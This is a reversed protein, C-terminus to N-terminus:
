DADKALRFGVQAMRLKAPHGRDNRRYTLAGLRPTEYKVSTGRIVYCLKKESWFSATWEAVNGAMNVAGLPSVDGAGQRVDALVGEGDQQWFHGRGKKWFSGWPYARRGGRRPDCSAAIEWEVETPLRMKRFRAYADAEFWSIGTVPLNGTQSPYSGGFWGRPGPQRGERDLFTAALAKGGGSWYSPEAYGGADVFEKFRANSVEYKGLYFGRVKVTRLPNAAEGRWGVEYTGRAVYVMGPPRDVLRKVESALSRLGPDEPFHEKAKEIRRKAEAADGRDMAERIGALLKELFRARLGTLRRGVKGALTEIGRAEGRAKELDGLAEALRGAKEAATASGLLIGVRCEKLRRELEATKRLAAAKEFTELAAEFEGSGLAEEGRAWLEEFSSKQQIRGQIERRLRMAEKEAPLLSLLDETMRSAAGLHGEALLSSIRGLCEKRYRADAVRLRGTWAPNEAIRRVSRLATLPDGGRAKDDAAVVAALIKADAALAEEGPSLSVLRELAQAAARFSGRDLFLDYEGRLLCYRGLGVARDPWDGRTLVWFREGFTKELRALAKACLGAAKLKEAELLTRTVELLRSARKNEPDENLVKLLAEEAEPWKGLEVFKEARALHGQVLAARDPQLPPLAGREGARVLADRLFYGGVALGALLLVAAVALVRRRRVRRSTYLVTKGEEIDDLHDLVEGVTQYRENPDKAMMREVVNNYSPDLRPNYRGPPRVEERIHKVLVFMPNKDDFPRRGTLLFYFLAGLSYIDSRKDLTDGRCQEPSMYHPTGIITGDITLDEEQGLNKAVGFDAIKPRGEGTMLINAPKLDRHILEKEHAQLLGRCIEKMIRHAEEIAIEEGHKVLDELDGGPVYEMEIFYLGETEGVNYVEVVNPHRLQGLSEAERFFRRVREPDPNLSKPLIKVAVSRKIGTHEAKYVAGMGGRGLMAQIRYNAVTKGVIDTLIKDETVERALEQAKQVTRRAQSGTKRKRPKEDPM